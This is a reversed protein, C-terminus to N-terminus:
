DETGAALTKAQEIWDEREVRGKSHVQEDVWAVQEPTLEAIQDYHYIGLENLTTEMKPGIGVIKKLDDAQGGRPAELRVPAIGIAHTEAPAPAEAPKAEAKPKAAAKPKPEAKAPKAAAKALEPANEAHIAEIRLLTQQQRHGRMRRSNQRRRKKFVLIKRARSQEVVTADVAAGAILPAGVTVAAGEGIMLVEGLRITDGAEAALREVIITDSPSVRYQKGGTKIVAYM